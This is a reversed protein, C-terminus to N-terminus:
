MRCCSNHGPFRSNAFQFPSQPHKLYCKMYCATLRYGIRAGLTKAREEKLSRGANRTALPLLLIVVHQEKTSNWAASVQRQQRYYLSYLDIHRGCYFLQRFDKTDVLNLIGRRITTVAPVGWQSCRCGQIM